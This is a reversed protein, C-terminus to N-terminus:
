LGLGNILTDLMDTLTSMVKANAAYTNQYIVLNTIEEDISVGSISEKKEDLAEILAEENSVRTDASQKEVGMNSIMNIYYSDFTSGTSDDEFELTDSDYNSIDISDISFKSDRLESIALARAGDGYDVDTNIESPDNDIIENVSINEATFVEEGDSTVFFSIGDEGEHIKNLTQAISNALNDLQGSYENIFDLAERYGKLEGTTLKDEYEYIENNEDTIIISGEELFSYNNTFEEETIKITQVNSTDGAIAINVEYGGDELQEISDVFSIEYQSETSSNSSVLEKGGSTITARGYDDFSCEFNISSSMEDLLLDREDLLSNPEVNRIASKYIQNNLSDIEELAKNLDYVKTQMISQANDKLDSLSSSISNLTFVFDQTTQSVVSKISEETPDISLEEWSNWMDSMAQNLGNESPELFITEIQGLVEATVEYQGLVGNETRIQKDLFEDRVRVVKTTDAGNELTGDIDINYLSTNVTEVRQMSYGETNTNAINNSVVEIRKQADYMGRKATNFSAFLQSM